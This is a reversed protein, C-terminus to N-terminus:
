QQQAPPTQGKPGHGRHAERREKMKKQMEDFKAQQDSNLASRIQSQSNEHIQMMKERKQDRSVSSDDHLSKMQNAEDELIPRIKTKQEDTLNLKQSLHNLRNDPNMAKRMKAGRGHKWKGGNTGQQTTSQGQQADTGTQAVAAPGIALAAFLAYTVIKKM